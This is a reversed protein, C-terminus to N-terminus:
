QSYLLMSCLLPLQGHESLFNRFEIKWCSLQATYFLIDFCLGVQTSMRYAYVLAPTDTDHHRATKDQTPTTYLIARCWSVLM